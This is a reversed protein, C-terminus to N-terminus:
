GAARCGEVMADAEALSMAMPKEAWIARVSGAGARLVGAVVAARPRASTCVSVIEPRERELMERYDAYLHRDDMGWKRAFAQRQSDYPDAGAVLEVDDVARYCAAHAHPASWRSFREKEDDFTSGMRGLGIIAARYRSRSMRGGIRRGRAPDPETRLT